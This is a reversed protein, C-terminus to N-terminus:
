VSLISIYRLVMSQLHGPQEPMIWISTVLLYTGSMKLLMGLKRLGLWQGIFNETLASSKRDSLMRDVHRRLVAPNSLEGRDAATRLEDDPM